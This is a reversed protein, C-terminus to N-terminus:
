RERSGDGPARTHSSSRTPAHEPASTLSERELVLSARVREMQAIREEVDALRKPIDEVTAAHELRDSHGLREFVHAAVPGFHESPQRDVGQRAYSRHDVREDRGHERLRVNIADALRVRAGEVWYRGHFARSKAAGGREPHASNARRFWQQPDRDIGDNRRESIMVHVHPNHEHGEDDEGAHIAFTYPLQESDTLGSVFERALAIQEERDLGRPLAFDGAVFLRGNQREYLDAADWYVRADPQAWAPMHGSEVHDARDFEAQDFGHERALYDHASVACAGSARSGSRFSVHFFGGRQASSAGFPAGYDLEFDSV